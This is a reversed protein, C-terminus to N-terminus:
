QAVATSDHDKPEELAERLPMLRQLLSNVIESHRQRRHTHTDHLHHVKGYGNNPAPIDHLRCITITVAIRGWQQARFPTLVDNAFLRSCM